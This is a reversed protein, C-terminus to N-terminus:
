TVDKDGKKRIIRQYLQNKKLGTLKAALGAAQKAPLEASLVALIREADLLLGEEVRGNFGHVLIVFEGRQQDPDGSVKETLNGLGGYLFTEHLKTLERALVARREVGFVESMAYLTPLIRHSSEYFLLTARDRAFGQLWTLRQASQRPPFGVFLFRDTPLGAASLACILASVGPIPIVRLGADIALQVLPFGPDSILPTGADSVLALSEGYLMRSLLQESRTRENHEHLAIMPTEIGHFSLLRRTHRTDEAAILDVDRLVKVARFTVDDLNGIPTAVVYLLGKSVDM